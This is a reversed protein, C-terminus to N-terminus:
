QASPAPSQNRSPTGTSLLWRDSSIARNCVQILVTCAVRLAPYEIFRGTKDDRCPAAPPASPSKISLSRPHKPSPCIYVFCKSKTQHIYYLEHSLAFRAVPVERLRLLKPLIAAYSYLMKAVSVTSHFALDPTAMSTTIVRFLLFM